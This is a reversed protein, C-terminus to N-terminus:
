ENETCQGIDFFIYYGRETGNGTNPVDYWGPWGSRFNRTIDGTANTGPRLSTLLSRMHKWAYMCNKHQLCNSFMRIATFMFILARWQFEDDQVRSVGRQWRHLMRYPTILFLQDLPANDLALLNAILHAQTLYWCLLMFSRSSSWKSPAIWTLALVQIDSWHGPLMIPFNNMMYSFRSAGNITESMHSLPDQVETLRKVNSPLHIWTQSRHPATEPQQVGDNPVHHFTNHKYGELNVISICFPQESLGPIQAWSLQLPRTLKGPITKLFAM